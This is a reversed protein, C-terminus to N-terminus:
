SGQAQTVRDIQERTIVGDDPVLPHHRHCLRLHGHSFRGIRRCGTMQCNLLRYGLALISLGGVGELTQVPGGMFNTLEQALQSSWFGVLAIV